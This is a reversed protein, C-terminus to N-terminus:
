TQQRSQCDDANDTDHISPFTKSNHNHGEIANAENKLHKIGEVVPKLGSKLGLIRRNGFEDRIRCHRHVFDNQKCKPFTHFPEGNCACQIVDYECRKQQDSIEFIATCSEMVRQFFCLLKKLAAAAKDYGPQHDGDIGTCILQHELLHKACIGNSM